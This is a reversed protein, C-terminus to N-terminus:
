ASLLMSVGAEVEEADPLYREIHASDLGLKEQIQQPVESLVREGSVGATFGGVLAVAVHVIATVAEIPEHEPFHCYRVAHEIQAPFNWRKAVEAGIMAHDFGLMSQEAVLMNLNNSAAYELVSGFQEPLCVDLALLGLDHFVGATYAMEQDQRSHKALAKAYVGVKFSRKWYEHRDFLTGGQVNPFIKVLGASMVLSRVTNFGLVVVAEHMSGIQRSLGYFSSNAVKLVKATLGQDKSIKDALEASDLEPNNFSDIVEQLVTPIVPLQNLHAIVEHIPVQM